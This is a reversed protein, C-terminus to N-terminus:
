PDKRSRRLIVVQCATVEQLPVAYSHTEVVM